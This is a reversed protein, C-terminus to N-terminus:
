DEDSHTGPSPWGLETTYHATHMVVWLPQITGSDRCGERQTYVAQVSPLGPHYLALHGSHGCM